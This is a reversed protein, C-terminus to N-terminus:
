LGPLHGARGLCLGGCGPAVNRSPSHIWCYGPACGDADAEHVNSLVANELAIMPREM